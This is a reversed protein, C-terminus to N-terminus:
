VRERSTASPGGARTGAKGSCADAERWACASGSGNALLTAVRRARPLIVGRQRLHARPVPGLRQQHRRRHVRAHPVARERRPLQVHQAREARVDDRRHAAHVAAPCATAGRHSAYGPHQRPQARGKPAAATMSCSSLGWPLTQCAQQLVSLEQAPRAACTLLASAHPSTPRPAMAAGCVM